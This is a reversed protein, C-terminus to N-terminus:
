RIASSRRRVGGDPPRRGTRMTPAPIRKTPLPKATAPTHPRRLKPSTRHTSSSLVGCQPSNASLRPRRPPGTPTEKTVEEETVHEETVEEETVHEETAEEETGHEETVEEETAHEEIVEDETADGETASGGPQAEDEDPGTPEVADDGIRASMTLAADDEASPPDPLEPGGVGFPSTVPATGLPRNTPDGTAEAIADDIGTPIAMIINLIAQVPNLFPLLGSRPPSAPISTM